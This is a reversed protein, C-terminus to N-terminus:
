LSRYPIMSDKVDVGHIGQTQLLMEVSKRAEVPNPCPGVYVRKIELRQKLCTLPIKLYPILTSPGRRFHADDVHRNVLRFVLRWEREEYFAKNKTTANDLSFSRLHSIAIGAPTHRGVQENFTLTRKTKEAEQIYADVAKQIKEKLQREVAPNNYRCRRLHDDPFYHHESANQLFHKGINKLYNRSFGISYGGTEGSYARWQSLLNGRESFSIVYVDQSDIESIIREGHHLVERDECHLKGQPSRTGMLQEIAAPNGRVALEELLLRTVIRGESTDNLYRYHTAWIFKEKEGLIGLLGAQTTYHYLLEPEPRDANETREHDEM